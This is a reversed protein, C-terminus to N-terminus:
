KCCRKSKKEKRQQLLQYANQRVERKYNSLADVVLDLGADGYNLAESLAKIQYQINDSTLRHKVGEIGGLVVGDVPPPNDGGLVLDYKKPQRLEDNM